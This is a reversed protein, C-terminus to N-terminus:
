LKKKLQKQNEYNKGRKEKFADIKNEQYYEVTKSISDNDMFRLKFLEIEIENLKFTQLFRIVRESYAKNLFYNIIEERALIRLVYLDSTAYMDYYGFYEDSGEDIINNAEVESIIMNPNNIGGSYRFTDEIRKCFHYGREHFKIEGDLHFHKGLIDEEKVTNGDYSKYGIM